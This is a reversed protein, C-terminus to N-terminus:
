PKNQQLSYLKSIAWNLAIVSDEDSEIEARQRLFQLQHIHTISVEDRMPLPCEPNELKCRITHLASPGIGRFSSLTGNAYASQLQNITAIGHNICINRLKTPLALNDIEYYTAVVSDNNPNRKVIDCIEQIEEPPIDPFTVIAREVTEGVQFWRMLTERRTERVYADKINSM